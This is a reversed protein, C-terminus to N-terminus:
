QSKKLYELYETMEMALEGMTVLLSNRKESDDTGAIKTRLLSMKNHITDLLWIIQYRRMFLRLKKYMYNAHVSNPDPIINGVGDRSFHQNFDQNCPDIYDGEDNSKLINVYSCCYILNQYDTKLSPTEPYSKWPVFHDIHFNNKGGFWFDPCDTYGCRNSFDTALHQKYSRYNAHKGQYQRTPHNERFKYTM